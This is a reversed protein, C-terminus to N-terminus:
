SKLRTMTDWQNAEFKCINSIHHKFNLKSNVNTVVPRELSQIGIKFYWNIYIYMKLVAKLSTLYQSKDLNETM